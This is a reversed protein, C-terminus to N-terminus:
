SAAAPNAAGEDDFLSNQCFSAASFGGKTNRARTGRKSRRSERAAPRRKRSAELEEGDRRGGKMPPPSAPDQRPRRLLPVQGQGQGGEKVVDPPRRCGASALQSIHVLTRASSTGFAGFELVKVLHGRLDSGVGSRLRAVQDVQRRKVGGGDNSAGERHV